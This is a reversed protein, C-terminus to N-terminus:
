FLNYYHEVLFKIREKSMFLAKKLVRFNRKLFSKHSGEWYIKNAKKLIEKRQNLYYKSFIMEETGQYIINQKETSGM